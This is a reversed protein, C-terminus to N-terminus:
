LRADELSTGVARTIVRDGQMQIYETVPVTVTEDNPLSGTVMLRSPQHSELKELRYIISRM